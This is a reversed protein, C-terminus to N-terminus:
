CASKPCLSRKQPAPGPAPSLRSPSGSSQRSFVGLGLSTDLPEGASMPHRPSSDPASASHQGLTLLPTGPSTASPAPETRRPGGPGCGRKEGPVQRQPEAWGESGARPSDSLRCAGGPRPSGPGAESADLRGWVLCHPGPGAGPPQHPEPRPWDDGTALSKLFLLAPRPTATLQLPIGGGMYVCM